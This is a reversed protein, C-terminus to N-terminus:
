EWKELFGVIKNMGFQEVLCLKVDFGIKLFFGENGMSLGKDGDKIRSGQDGM